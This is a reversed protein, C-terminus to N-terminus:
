RTIIGRLKANTPHIVLLHRLAMRRFLELCNVISTTTFICIPNEIIYPRFDIKYSKYYECITLIDETVEKDVSLFDKQFMQWKLHIAKHLRPYEVEDSLNTYQVVTAKRLLGGEDKAMSMANVDFGDIENIRKSSM